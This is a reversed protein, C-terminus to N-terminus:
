ALLNGHTLVAAKPTGATGPLAVAIDDPAGRRARDAPAVAPVGDAPMADFYDQLAEAGDLERSALV